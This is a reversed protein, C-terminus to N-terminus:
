ESRGALPRAEGCVLPRRVLLVGLGLIAMALVWLSWSDSGTGPLEGLGLEPLDPRESLDPVAGVYIGLTKIMRPTVFALTHEGPALEFPIEFEGIFEGFADTQFTAVLIPDSFLVIEGELRPDFGRAAAGVKADDQLELLGNASPRVAEGSGDIAAVMLATSDTTVVTVNEVPILIPLANVDNFLGRVSAGTPTEELTIAASEADPLLSNYRGILGEGQERIQRIEDPNRLAPPRDVFAQDIRTVQAQSRQGDVVIAAMSPPTRLREADQSGVLTPPDLLPRQPTPRDPTPAPLLTPEPSAIVPVTPATSDTAPEPLVELTFTRDTYHTHIAPNDIALARLTFTHVGVTTASLTVTNAIVEPQSLSVGVLATRPQVLASGTLNVSISDGRTVSGLNVTGTGAAGWQPVPYRM